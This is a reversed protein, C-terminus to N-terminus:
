FRTNIFRRFPGRYWRTRAKHAKKVPTIGFPSIRRFNQTRTTHVNQKLCIQTLVSKTNKTTTTTSLKHNSSKRASYIPSLNFMTKLRSTIRQPQSPEFHWSVLYSVTRRCGQSYDQGRNWGLASAAASCGAGHLPSWKHTTNTKIHFIEVYNSHYFFLLPKIVQLCFRQSIFQLKNEARISDGTTSRAWLM